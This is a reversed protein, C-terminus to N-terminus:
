FLILQSSMKKTKGSHIFLQLSITLANGNLATGGSNKFNLFDYRISSALQLQKFSAFRYSLGIGPAFSKISKAFADMETESSSTHISEWGLSLLARLKHQNNEILPYSGQFGVYGGLYDRTNVTLDENVVRYDEKSDGTRLEATFYVQLKRNSVGMNIGLTPHTGLVSLKSSPIWIGATIAFLGKLDILWNNQKEIMKHHLPQSSYKEDCLITNIDGYQKAYVLCILLEESGLIQEKALEEAWGVLFQDYRRLVPFNSLNEEYGECTGSPNNASWFRCLSSIQEQNNNITQYQKKEIELLVTTRAWFDSAGCDKYWYKLVIEISDLKSEQHLRMIENAANSSIDLCTPVYKHLKDYLSKNQGVALQSFLLIVVCLTRSLKRM